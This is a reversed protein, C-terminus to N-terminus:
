MWPISARKEQMKGFYFALAIEHSGATAQTLRSITYDYSYSVSFSKTVFGLLGIYSNRDRYSVGIKWKGHLASVGAMFYKFDQQKAYAANLYIRSNRKAEHNFIRLSGQLSHRVPLRSHALMFSNTPRNANHMAYALLFVKSHLVAGLNFNIYRVIPSPITQQTEYIFGYRTDIQDGFTLLSVDLNQSNFSGSVGLRLALDEYIRFSRGLNLGITNSVLTGSGANDLIYNVGFDLPLKDNTIDAGIHTTYFSGPIEPWQIRQAAQVRGQGASGTFAPNAYLASSYTQTFQPDQAHLFNCVFLLFLSFYGANFAQHGIRM